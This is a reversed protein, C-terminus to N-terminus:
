CLGYQGCAIHHFTLLAPPQPSAPVQMVMIRQEVTERAPDPLTMVLKSVHVDRTQGLRHARDVAQLRANIGDLM